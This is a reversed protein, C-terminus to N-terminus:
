RAPNRNMAPSAFFEGSWCFSGGLSEATMGDFFFLVRRVGKSECLTNVIAYCLRQQAADDLDCILDACRSSLNLLLTDDDIAIGLVDSDALVAPLPSSYGAALEAESVDGFLLAALTRPSAASSVPVARQVAAIKNGHPLYLKVQESLLPAFTNRRVRGQDPQVSGFREHHLAQLPETGIYIDIAAISPIFTLLTQSVSAMFCTMDVGANALREGIDGIFRLTLLRGGSELDSASPAYVMMSAIDPMDCVGSTYQAGSSLAALLTEALQQPTQGPFSLAHTEPIVGSGDALPFYLAASAATPVTSPSEGLPTRRALLQEWLAPLSEGPHATLCGLPLIASIDMGVAQDAVLVNVAHIDPLQCLTASISLCVTYFEDLDLQLASTALNVTCIGGAVEVPTQGYLSLAVGKGLPRLQTDGPHMLLARVVSEACHQNHSLKLNEYRCLLKQGDRSPLYLATERSYDMLEDSIPATYGTSAPPLTSATQVNIEPMAACGTLSLVLATCLLFSIIRKM